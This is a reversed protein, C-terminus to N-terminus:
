AEVLDLPGRGGDVVKAPDAGLVGLTVGALHDRFDTTILFNGDDDFRDLPPQEGVHGGRVRPGLVFQTGATGHETGEGNWEPRRGFETWTAIVVRDANAGLRRQFRAIARDLEGLLEPLMYRQNGHTDFGDHSVHFARTPIGGNILDAILDLQFGLYGADGEDDDAESRGGVIPGLRAGVGRLQLQSDRARSFLDSGGTTSLGGLARDLSRYEDTFDASWPIRSEARLGVPSWGDAYMSPSVGGLSIALLPDPDAGALDAMARGLWGSTTGFDPSGKEWMDTADFHSLSSGEWGVGHVIALDGATWSSALHPMSNLAYSSDIRHLTPAGDADDGLRLTGDGRVRAYRSDDLPVVANLFDLGGALQISVLLLGPDTAGSGITRGGPEPGFNGTTTERAVLRDVFGPLTVAGVAGAAGFGALQLFRRRTPSPVPVPPSPEPNM